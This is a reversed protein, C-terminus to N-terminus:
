PTTKRLYQKGSPLDVKTVGGPFMTALDEEKVSPQVMCWQGPTWDAPTAVRMKDTLQLSDIVRLIETFNRGTTAPYLLSLRLKKSPDIVFVARCTLPLGASGIEDKDLMNLRVALTRDEDDIIPYSFEGLKGYDKIDAIWQRHSEASDCSLAIPKVNRKTFEPVLRAVASLETTCVPTFDAPHSFLIVWSNGAWEHFDIKGTTTDATFNPFQDGLQLAM